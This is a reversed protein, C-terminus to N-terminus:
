DEPCCPSRILVLLYALMRLFLRGRERVCVWVCNNIVLKISVYVRPISNAINKM